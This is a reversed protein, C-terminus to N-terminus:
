PAGSCLKRDPVTNACCPEKMLFVPGKKIGTPIGRPARVYVVGELSRERQRAHLWQVEEPLCLSFLSCKSCRAVLSGSLPSPPAQRAAIQFAQAIAERTRARLQPDFLVKRRQRTDPYAIYGYVLLPKDPQMEELCLARACFQIQDGPWDDQQNYKYEVPVLLGTHEEVVDVFGSLHLTESYLSLHTTEITSEEGLRAEAQPIRKRAMHEASMQDDFPTEGQVVQYYFKRPCYELTGLSSLPLVERQFIEHM